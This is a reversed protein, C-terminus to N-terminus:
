RFQSACGDSVIHVTDIKVCKSVCTMSAMRSEDSAETVTTPMTKITNSEQCRYYPCATFISFTSQAFYASQIENQDKSKYNESYDVHLRIENAKISTKLHSIKSQHRRKVFIHEKLRQIRTNWLALGDELSYTCYKANKLKKQPAM